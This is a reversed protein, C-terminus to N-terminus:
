RESIDIGNKFINLNRWYYGAEPNIARTIRQFSISIKNNDKSKERAFERMRRIVNPKNTYSAYNWFVKSHENGTLDSWNVVLRLEMVYSMIDTEM